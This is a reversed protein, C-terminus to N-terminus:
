RSRSIGCSPKQHTSKLRAEGIYALALHARGLGRATGLDVKDGAPGLPLLPRDLDLARERRSGSAAHARRDVVQARLAAEDDVRAVIAVADVILDLDDAEGIEVGIEAGARFLPPWV